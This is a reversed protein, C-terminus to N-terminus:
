LGPPASIMRNQEGWGGHRHRRSLYGLGWAPLPPKMELLSKGKIAGSATGSLSLSLLQLNGSFM